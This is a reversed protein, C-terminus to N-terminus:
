PHLTVVTVVVDIIGVVGVGQRATGKGTIHPQHLLAVSDENQGVHHFFVRTPRFDPATRQAEVARQLVTGQPQVAVGCQLRVASLEFTADRCVIVGRYGNTCRLLRAVNRHGVQRQTKARTHHEVHKCVTRCVLQFDRLQMDPLLVPLVARLIVSRNDLDYRM